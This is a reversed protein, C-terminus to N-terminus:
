RAAQIQQIMRAARPDGLEKARRAHDLADGREGAALAARAIELHVFARPPQSPSEEGAIVCRLTPLAEALRGASISRAAV